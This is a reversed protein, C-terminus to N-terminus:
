LLSPFKNDKWRESKTNVQVTRNGIMVARSWRSFPENQCCLFLSLLLLVKGTSYGVQKKNCVHWFITFFIYISQGCGLAAATTENMDCFLCLWFGSFGALLSPTVTQHLHEVTKNRRQGPVLLANNIGQCYLDTIIVYTDRLLSRLFTM